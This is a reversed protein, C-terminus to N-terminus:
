ISSRIQRGLIVLDREIEDLEAIQPLHGWQEFGFGQFLNLSPQNHGFIFGLLTTIELQPCCAIAHSLLEKGIGQRQCRPDVYVSVEVTKQYAPRGYFLQFSLWGAVIGDQEAIWIPYRHNHSRFWELRSATLVTETDATAMRGPIAANYINVIAILDSEIAYRIKVNRLM